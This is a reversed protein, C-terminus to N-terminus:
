SWIVILDQSFDYVYNCQSCALGFEAKHGLSSDNRKIFSPSRSLTETKDLLYYLSAQDESM